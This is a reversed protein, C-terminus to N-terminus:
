AIFKNREGWYNDQTNVWVYIGCCVGSCVGICVGRFDGRGGRAAFAWLSEGREQCGRAWRGGAGGRTGRRRAEDGLAELVEVGDVLTVRLGPLVRGPAGPPPTSPPARVVATGWAGPGRGRHQQLRGRRQRGRLELPVAHAGLDELVGAGEAGGGPGGGSEGGGGRPPDPIRTPTRWSPAPPPSVIHKATQRLRVRTPHVALPYAAIHHPNTFGGGGVPSAARHRLDIGETPPPTGSDGPDGLPSPPPAGASRHESNRSSWALRSSSAWKPSWQTTRMGM